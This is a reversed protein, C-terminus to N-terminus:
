RKLPCYLLRARTVEQSKMWTLGLHSPLATVSWTPLPLSQPGCALDWLQDSLGKCLVLGVAPCHM